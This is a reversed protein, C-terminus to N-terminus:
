FIIFLTKFLNGVRSWQKNLKALYKALHFDQIWTYKFPIVFDKDCFKQYLVFWDYPHMTESDGFQYTYKQCLIDFEKKYELLTTNNVISLESLRDYNKDYVTISVNDNKRSTTYTYNKSINYYDEYDDYDSISINNLIGYIVKKIKNDNIVYTIENPTYLNIHINNNFM